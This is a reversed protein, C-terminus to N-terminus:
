PIVDPDKNSERKRAEQVLEPASKLVTFIVAAITMAAFFVNFQLATIQDSRQLHMLLFALGLFSLGVAIIVPSRIVRHECIQWLAWLERRPLGKLLAWDDRTM